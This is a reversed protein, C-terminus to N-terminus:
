AAPTKFTYTVRSIDLVRLAALVGEANEPNEEIYEAMKARIRAIKKVDGIRMDCEADDGEGEDDDGFGGFDGGAEGGRHATAGCCRPSRLATGACAFTQSCPALARRPRAAVMGGLLVARRAGAAAHRAASFLCARPAPRAPPRAPVARGLLGRASQSPCSARARPACRSPGFEDALAKFIAAAATKSLGAVQVMRNVYALAEPSVEMTDLAGVSGKKKM